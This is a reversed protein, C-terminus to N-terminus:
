EIVLKLQQGQGIEMEDFQVKMRDGDFSQRAPIKRGDLSVAAKGTRGKVSVELTSLSLKGYRLDVTNVQGGNQRQQGIIGWGRAATFFGRFNGSQVRPHFGLVKRPGDYSYDELAMLAGWSAMARAYHDGCEIENWPNHRTGDYRDHVAKVISLGENVMGEYIMATAVQYEIGTWVEDRYRVGDEGMHHSFPWTCVLLGAEGPDAYVREPPHRRNQLGVDPAWNYKWISALATKVNSGPYLYGLGLLDSWTQGFLQDSLCGDAYQYKPHAKLDVEQRFYYGNWLRQVSGSSGKEFIATWCDRSVTDGMIAAMRAGAKLAALYLGGVYTNAGYFAIDYTNAQQREILGDENEDQSILYEMAKRIRPWNRSLFLGDPSFLDERYAKLIAGAHGDILVDGWGNRALISGDQQFSTSFDTKERINRELEPFLRALAQEYNWVHTCTGVCSGVGEWAWFKDNAWWQCTETALTSVPMMLRQKLWYPLSTSDYYSDHFKHTEGSLRQLNNGLWVAVDRSDSFWNAYMNGLITTGKFPLAENWDNPIVQTVDDGYFYSPRNPFYWTLLFVVTKREGAGLRFRSGVAGDLKENAPATKESVSAHTGQLVYDADGYGNNDLVTLSLNGMYPHRAPFTRHDVFGPDALDMYVSTLGGDKVIRNRRAGTLSDKLDLCVLNQLWGRIDIDMPKGTTNKMTYRIVTGPTASSRADLPIFPSFVEMGIELPFAKKKDAYKINAIPYEGFFSIDDFGSSDLRREQARGDQTIKVSFGQDIYSAPRFTQYCVKWPGLATKFNMLSDKGYGTNYANNCIWWDAFTGDGRVCLQGAAIGGCPMGITALEKGRYPKREDAWLSRYWDKSLGKDVPVYHSSDLAPQAIVPCLAFCLLSAWILQIWKGTRM